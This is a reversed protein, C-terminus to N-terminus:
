EEEIGMEGLFDDIIEPDSQVESLRRLKEKRLEEKKKEFSLVNEQHAENHSDHAQEHAEVLEKGSNEIIERERDFNKKSVQAIIKYERAKSYGVFFAVLSALSFVLWRWHASCWAKTKQWWSM